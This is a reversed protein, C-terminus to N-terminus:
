LEIFIKEMRLYSVSKHRLRIEEKELTGTENYISFIFTPPEPSINKQNEDTINDFEENISKTVILVKKLSPSFDFAVVSQDSENDNWVNINGTQIDFTVVHFNRDVSKILARMYIVKRKLDLQLFDVYYLDKTLIKIKNKNIDKMLLQQTGDNLRGTFYIKKTEEFYTSTPYDDFQKELLVEEKLNNVDLKIVRHFNDNTASNIYLHEQKRENIASISKQLIFIFFISIFILIVAFFTIKLRKNM